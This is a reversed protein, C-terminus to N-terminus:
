NIAESLNVEIVKLKHNVTSKAYKLMKNANKKNTYVPAFHVFKDDRGVSEVLLFTGEKVNIIAYTKM